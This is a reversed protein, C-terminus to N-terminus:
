RGVEIEQAVSMTVVDSKGTVPNTACGGAALTAAAAAAFLLARVIM